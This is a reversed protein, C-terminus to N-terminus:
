FPMRVGVRVLNDIDADGAGDPDIEGNVLSVTLDIRNNLAYAGELEWTDYAIDTNGAETDASKITFAGDIRDTVQFRVGADFGFGTAVGGFTLREYNLQGWVTTTGPTNLDARIGPGVSFTDVPFDAAGAGDVDYMDSRISVFFNENFSKSAELGLGMADDDGIEGLLTYRAQLYDYNAADAVGAAPVAMLGLATAGAIISHIRM